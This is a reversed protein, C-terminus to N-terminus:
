NSGPMGKAARCSAWASSILISAAQRVICAPYVAVGVGALFRDLLGFGVLGEVAHGAAYWFGCVSASAQSPNIEIIGNELRTLM